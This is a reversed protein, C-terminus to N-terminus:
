KGMREIKESRKKDDLNLKTIKLNSPHIPYFSDTSDAKKIAAGEVHVFTRALCVKTVKGSQSKFQGTRITVIDGKRVPVSRVGHKERLEKSLSTTCLKHKVHLPANHVYKRQKRPQSSAKWAKSFLKSVM